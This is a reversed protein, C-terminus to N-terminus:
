FFLALLVNILDDVHDAFFSMEYILLYKHICDIIKVIEVMCERLVVEALESIRPFRQLADLVEDKLETRCEIRLLIFLDAFVYPDVLRGLHKRASLESSWADDSRLCFDSVAREYSSRSKNAALAHHAVRNLQLVDDEKVVNLSRMVVIYAIRYETVVAVHTCAGNCGVHFSVLLKNNYMVSRFHDLGADLFESSHEAIM